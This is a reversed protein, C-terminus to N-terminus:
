GVAKIQKRPVGVEGVCGSGWRGVECESVGGRMWSDLLVPSRGLGISVEVGGCYLSRGCGGSM